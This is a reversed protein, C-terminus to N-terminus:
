SWDIRGERKVEADVKSHEDLDLDEEETKISKQQSITPRKELGMIKKEEGDVNEVIVEESGSIEAEDDSENSVIINSEAIMRHLDGKTDQILDAYTGDQSIRGQKVVIIQDVQKLHIAGNTVLIRTKDALIRTIAEEFIHRDVHADVASLPDDFIYVDANSYVARAISIRQRQGGSLNIGKEGILTKDGNVLMKIDPVLACAKIVQFYREKNYERGFIINNRVTDNLIWASQAVYAVSGYTRVLGSYKYMEGLLAGVLSSKGEGVRGIVATLSGRKIAFSVNHLVPGFTDRAAAENGKEAEDVKEDSAATDKFSTKSDDVAASKENQDTKEDEVPKVNIAKNSNKKIEKAEKKAKEEAEKKSKVEMTKIAEPSYWGFTGDMVEYAIDSESADLHREVNESNIEEAQFFDRLRVYSVHGSIIIRISSTIRNVPYGLMNLLTLCTFIRQLTLPADPPAIASYVTLLAFTSLPVAMYFLAINISNIGNYRRLANLQKLRVESLHRVFYREWAYLKISKINNVLENVLKMRLDNKATMQRFAVRTKSSIYGTIIAIAVTVGFSAFMAYRVQQFLLIMAIIVGILSSWIMHIIPFLALVNDVDTSMHNVISGIGEQKSTSSLRLAKRYLLSNFVGRARISCQFSINQYQATFLGSLVSSALVGLMLGYGKWAPEPGLNGSENNSVETYSTMFAILDSFLVPRIYTTAVSLLCPIVASMYEWGVIHVLIPFLHIKQSHVTSTTTAEGTTARALQQAEKQRAIAEDADIRAQTSVLLPYSLMKPHLSWIDDMRLTKKKGKNLLPIIWLFTIRSFINSYPEPSPNAQVTKNANTSRTLSRRNAKPINELGFVIFAVITFLFKLLPLSNSLGNHSEEIRTRTPFLSILATFLWYLLLMTSPNPM